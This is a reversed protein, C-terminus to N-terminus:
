CLVWNQFGLSCPCRQLVVSFVSSIPELLAKQSCEGGYSGRCTDSAQYLQHGLRYRNPHMALRSHLPSGGTTATMLNTSARLCRICGHTSWSKCHFSAESSHHPTRLSLHAMGKVHVSNEPGKISGAPQRKHPQICGTVENNSLCASCRFGSPLYLSNMPSSVLLFHSHCHRCSASSAKQVDTTLPMM